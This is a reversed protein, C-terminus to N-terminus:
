LFYLQKIKESRFNDKFGKYHQSGIKMCRGSCVIENEPTKKTLSDQWKCVKCPVCNSLTYFNM